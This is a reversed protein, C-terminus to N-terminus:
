RGGLQITSTTQNQLGNDREGWGEEDVEGGSKLADHTTGKDKKRTEM